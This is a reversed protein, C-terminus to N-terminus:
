PAMADGMEQEFKVCRDVFHDAELFHDVLDDVMQVVKLLASASLLPREVLTLIQKITQYV